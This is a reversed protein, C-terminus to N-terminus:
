SSSSDCLVSCLPYICCAPFRFLAHSFSVIILILSRPSHIFFSLFFSLFFIFFLYSRPTSTSLSLTFQSVVVIHLQLQPVALLCLCVCVTEFVSLSSPLSLSKLSSPSHSHSPYFSQLHQWHQLSASWNSCRFATQSSFSFSSSKGKQISQGSVSRTQEATMAMTPWM